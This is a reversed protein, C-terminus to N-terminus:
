RLVVVITNNIIHQNCAYMCVCASLWRTSWRKVVLNSGTLLCDFLLELRTLSYTPNLTGSSVHYITESVLKELCDTTTTPRLRRYEAECTGVVSCGDDDDDDDDRKNWVFDMTVTVIYLM